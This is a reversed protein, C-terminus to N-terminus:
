EQLVKKLALQNNENEIRSKALMEQTYALKKKLSKNQKALEAIQQKYEAM